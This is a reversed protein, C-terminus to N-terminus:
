AWNRPTKDQILETGNGSNIIAVTSTVAARAAIVARLSRNQRLPRWIYREELAESARGTGPTYSRVTGARLQRVSLKKTYSVDYKGNASIQINSIEGPLAALAAGPLM